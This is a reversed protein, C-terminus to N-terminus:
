EPLTLKDYYELVIKPIHGKTCRYRHIGPWKSEIEVATFGCACYFGIADQDTELAISELSFEKFAYDILGRGIGKKRLDPQVALHLIWGHPAATYDIGIIGTIQSKDLAVFITHGDTSYFNDLLRQLREPTPRGMAMAILDKVAQTNHRDRNYKEIL